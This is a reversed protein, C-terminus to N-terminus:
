NITDYFEFEKKLYLIELEESMWKRKNLIKEFRLEIKMIIVYLKRIFKSWNKEIYLLKGMELIEFRKLPVNTGSGGVHIISVDPTFLIKLKMNKVRSCLEVDEWYMFFDEDWFLNNEVLLSANCFLFAGCLWPPFHNTQHMARIKEISRKALKSTNFIKIFFPNRYILKKFVKDGDHYSLQLSGDPNLLRCGVAFLNKNESLYRVCTSFVPQIFYTDPNLFLIYEGCASKIGLNNAKSFGINGYGDIVKFSSFNTQYSNLHSVDGGNNVIIIEVFSTDEYQLISSLCKKIHSESFYNIIIISIM